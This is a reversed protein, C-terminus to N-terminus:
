SDKLPLLVIDEFDLDLESLVPEALEIIEEDEYDSLGELEVYLTDNMEDIYFRTETSEFIERLTNVLFVVDEQWAEFESEELGDM